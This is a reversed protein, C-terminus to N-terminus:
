KKKNNKRRRKRISRYIFWVIVLIIVLVIYMTVNSQTLIGLEKAKEVSYVKFPIAISEKQDNNDFDKFTVDAKFIPTTSQYIIEFSAIETDDPDISGIFVKEKSLLEFGQPLIEVYVSKIEGLGKNVIELIVEGKQGVIANDPTYAEFEIETKASVRVGFSGGKKIQDEDNDVDFYTVEYPINYDGPVIDTYPLLNFSVSDDDDEDLDDIDKESSGVSTFPISDLILKVSVGEIDFNENNEIDLTIRKEEGSYFTVFDSDVILSSTLSFNVILLALILTIKIYKIKM